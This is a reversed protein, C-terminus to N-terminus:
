QSTMNYSRPGVNNRCVRKDREQFCELLEVTRFIQPLINQTVVLSSILIGIFLAQLKGQWACRSAVTDMALDM